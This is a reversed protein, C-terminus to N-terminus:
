EGRLEKERDTGEGSEFLLIAATLRKDLKDLRNNIVGLTDRISEISVRNLGVKKLLITEVKDNM